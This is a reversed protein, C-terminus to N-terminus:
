GVPLILLAEAKLQGVSFGSAASLTVRVLVGFHSPSRAQARPVKSSRQASGYLEWCSTLAEQEGHLSLLTRPPRRTGCPLLLFDRLGGGVACEGPRTFGERAAPGLETM